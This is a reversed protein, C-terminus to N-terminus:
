QCAYILTASNRQCLKGLILLVLMLLMLSVLILRDAGQKKDEVLRNDSCYLLSFSLKSVEDISAM